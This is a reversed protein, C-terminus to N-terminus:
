GGNAPAREKMPVANGDPSDNHLVGPQLNFLM